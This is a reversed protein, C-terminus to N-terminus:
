VRHLCVIVRGEIRFYELEEGSILRPPYAPNASILSITQSLPDFAVRKVLLENGTSVVYVGNGQIFGPRYVVIDGDFIMEDVMSDGSVYVAKLKEGQHPAVLSLPVQITRRESYEEIVRGRGAAAEQEFLEIEAEEPALGSRGKGTILWDLKVGYIGSLKELIERSPRMKGNGLYSGYSKSIGLSESFEKKSLGSMKQVFNFREAETKM